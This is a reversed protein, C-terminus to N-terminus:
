TARRDALAAGLDELAERKVKLTLILKRVRYHRLALVREYDEAAYILGISRQALGRVKKSRPEIQEMEIM